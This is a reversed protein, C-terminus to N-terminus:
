GRRRRELGAVRAEKEARADGREHESLIVHRLCTELAGKGEIGAIQWRCDPESVQVIPGATEVLRDRRVFGRPPTRWLCALKLFRESVPPLLQLEM